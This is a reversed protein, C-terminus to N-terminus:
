PRPFSGDELRSNVEPQALNVDEPRSNELLQPSDGDKHTSNQPRPSNGDKTRSSVHTQALNQDEVQQQPSDGDYTRSSM